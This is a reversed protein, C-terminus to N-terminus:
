QYRTEKMIKDIVMRSESLLKPFESYISYDHEIEGVKMRSEKAAEEIDTRSIGDYRM